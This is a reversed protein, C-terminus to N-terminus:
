ASVSEPPAALLPRGQEYDALVGEAAAIFAELHVRMRAVMAQDVDDVLGTEIRQRLASYGAFYAASDAVGFGGGAARAQAGLRVWASRQGRPGRRRSELVALVAGATRLAALYYTRLREANGVVLDGDDTIRIAQDLLRHADMVVTPEIGVSSDAAGM